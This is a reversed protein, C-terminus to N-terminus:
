VTRQLILHTSYIHFVKGDGYDSVAAASMMSTDIEGDVAVMESKVEENGETMSPPPAKVAILQNM